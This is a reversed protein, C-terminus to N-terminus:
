FPPPGTHLDFDAGVDAGGSVTKYIKDVSPLSSVVSQMSDPIMHWLVVVFAGGILSDRVVAKLKLTEQSQYYTMSASLCGVFIAGFFVAIWFSSNLTSIM